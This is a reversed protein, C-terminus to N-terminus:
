FMFVNVMKVNYTGYVWVCRSLIVVAINKKKKKQCLNSKSKRAASNKIKYYSQQLGQSCFAICFKPDLGKVSRM